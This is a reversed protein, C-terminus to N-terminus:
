QPEKIEESAFLVLEKLARYDEIMLTKRRKYIQQRTKEFLDGVSQDKKEYIMAQIIAYDKPSWRGCVSEIVQFINKMRFDVSPNGSRIEFRNRNRKKTSILARAAQLGEGIMEHAREQNIPTSITGYVISFRLGLPTKLQRSKEDLEFLLTVAAKFDAAVGQFEDGLTVTLPSLVLRKQADNVSKVLTRLSEFTQAHDSAMSKVVDSMLIAYKM